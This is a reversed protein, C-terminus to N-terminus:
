WREVALALGYGCLFMGGHTWGILSFVFGVILFLSPVKMRAM